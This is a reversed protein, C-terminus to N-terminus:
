ETRLAVVPDKKAAMRSPVFGAILTLVVSIIILIVAGAVPLEAGLNSIGTLNRIVMNIPICLLLTVLIGLVGSAFGEILTEANFVRSVDGKSAGVARLIGIEKTRELVSIYTIIGIMISSVILSIAVFAVLVYTIANLITTISSMLLAVYDTYTIQDEEGVSSNYSEIVNSVEDKDAFTSTYIYIASPSDEDVYGLLDLNDEYTSDSVMVPLYNEYIYAYNDATLELADFAAALEDTTMQGIQESVTEAYQESLRERITGTIFEILTEDSIESLMSEYEPNEAIIMAEIAERDLEGLYAELLAEIYEDSPQSILDVYIEAKELSTIGALYEDVAAAIEEETLEEEDGDAFPLGTIVDTTPDDLQAKVIDRSQTESIIYDTLATTYGIGSSMATSIADPNPRVIGVIKIETGGAFLTSIGLSSESLDIYEGTEEDYSYCDASLVLRLTASCMEEYTWPGSTHSIENGEAMDMFTESLEETTILGLSYLVLDTVCNNSDVIIVVEDYSSPWEGYLLDYQETLLSSVLLDSEDDDKPSLMEQWTDIGSYMSMISSSSSSMLSTIADSGGSTVSSMMNIMMSMADAKVISGDKDEVYINLDVDYEYMISSAYDLLPTNGESDATEIYTKFASLNNTTTEINTLSNYLDYTINNAYVYDGIEGDESVSESTTTMLSSMLSTMDTSEASLTIPYSSLTDEEVQNIYAQIGNSLALILSIGIIGISGAFAILFTRGKKTMLNSLSLSLATFFSMSTHRDYKDRERKKKKADATDTPAEPECFPNSDDTIKGDLLKVTRTAYKEALDPNHTVMIILRDKSIEKLIEMIQVSTESDLAGTPEDALLIEPDNVIARAIAVRQMQGGSMQNPKKSLQDGLGVRELAEKARRRREAKPVGSLTLALEVNTLVTQHPILNYAQFVFGVSHNRYSDWDADSFNHTNRGNIVLEGETPRDFGGIINLLTTKGCGSPGLIAVFESKRFEIDIGSLARVKDDGVDYDKVIGKLKLM